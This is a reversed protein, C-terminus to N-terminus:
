RRPSRRRVIRGIHVFMGVAAGVFIAALAVVWPVAEPALSVTSVEAAMYTDPTGGLVAFTSAEEGGDVSFGIWANPLCEIEVNYDGPPMKPVVFVYTATFTRQMVVTAFVRTPDGYRVFRMPLAAAGVGPCNTDDVQVKVSDGVHASQPDFGASGTAARVATAGIVLLVAISVLAILGAGVLAPRYM